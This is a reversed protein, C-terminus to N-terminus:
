FIETIGRFQIAVALEDDGEAGAGNGAQLVIIEIEDTIAQNEMRYPMM